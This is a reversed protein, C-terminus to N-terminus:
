AALQRAEVDKERVLSPLLTTTIPSLDLM